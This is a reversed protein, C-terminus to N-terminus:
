KEFPGCLSKITEHAEQWYLILQETAEAKPLAKVSEPIIREPLALVHTAFEQATAFETTDTYNWLPSMDIIREKM